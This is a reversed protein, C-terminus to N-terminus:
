AVHRRGNGFRLREEITGLPPSLRSVTKQPVFGFRRAERELREAELAVRCVQEGGGLAAVMEKTKKKM